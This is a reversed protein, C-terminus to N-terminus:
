DQYYEGYSEAIDVCLLVLRKKAQEEDSSLSDDMYNRCDRLDSLTNAFRCYDMNSM